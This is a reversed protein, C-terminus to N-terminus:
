SLTSRGGGHKHYRRYLAPFLCADSGAIAGFACGIVLSMNVRPSIPSDPLPAPDIVKLGSVKMQEMLRMDEYKSTLTLYAQEYVRSQRELQMLEVQKSALEPHESRFQSLRDKMLIARKEMSKLEVTLTVYQGMLGQLETIPHLSTSGTEALMKNFESDLQAQAADIKKKIAIVEPHMETQTELKNSLELQLNIIKERIWILPYAVPLHRKPM